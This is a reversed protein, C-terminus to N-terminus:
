VVSKRDIVPMVLLAGFGVAFCFGAAWRSDARDSPQTSRLWAIASLAALAFGTWALNGFWRPLDLHLMTPTFVNAWAEDIPHPTLMYFVNLAFVLVVGLFSITATSLVLTFAIMRALRMHRGAGTTYALTAVAAGILTGGVIFTAFLSHTLAAAAIAIRGYLVSSQLTEWQM